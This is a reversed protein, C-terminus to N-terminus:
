ASDPNVHDFLYMVTVDYHADGDSYHNIASRSLIDVVGQNHSISVQSEHPKWAWRAEDSM